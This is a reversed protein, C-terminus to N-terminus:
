SSMRRKKIYGIVVTEIKTWSFYLLGYIVGFSIPELMLVPRGYPDTIGILGLLSDIIIYICWIGITIVLMKGFHMLHRISRVWVSEAFYAKSDLTTKFMGRIVPNVIIMNTIFLALALFFIMQFLFNESENEGGGIPSWAVFLCVMGAVWMRLFLAIIEDKNKKNM